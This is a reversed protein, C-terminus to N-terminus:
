SERHCIVADVAEAADPAVDQARHLLAVDFADDGDVVQGVGVGERVQQLPVGDVAFEVALDAVVGFVDDHAAVLNFDQFFAIRGIQGPFIQAHIDDQFRGTKEGAAVFRLQM